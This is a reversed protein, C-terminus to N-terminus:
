TRIRNLEAVFLDRAEAFTMEAVPSPMPMPMPSNLDAADSEIADFDAPLIDGFLEWLRM